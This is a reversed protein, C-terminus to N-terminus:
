GKRWCRPCLDGECERPCDGPEDLYVPQANETLAERRRKAEAMATVMMLTQQEGHTMGMRQLQLM